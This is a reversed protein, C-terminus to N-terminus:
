LRCAQYARGEVFYSKDESFVGTFNWLRGSHSVSSAVTMIIPEELETRNPYVLIEVQDGRLNKTDLEVTDKSISLWM